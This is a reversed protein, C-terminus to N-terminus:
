AKGKKSLLQVILNMLNEQRQQAAMIDGMQLEIEKLRDMIDGNEEDGQFMLTFDM